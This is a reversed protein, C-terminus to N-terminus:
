RRLRPNLIEEFPRTCFFVSATTITIFLGPSFVWWWSQISAGKTFAQRLIQGWSISTPDGFGLFSIAAEALVANGFAVPLYVFTLPLINPTIHYLMIRFDSAGAVRASKIFARERMSLVQTRIVRMAQRWYVLSVALIITWVSPSLISVIVIALPEFPISYAAEVLRQLVNDVHGRYYGSIVGLITGVVAAILAGYLGIIVVTRSGVLIQSFIDRGLDNTGLLYEASPPKLIPVKGDLGRNITLPEYPALSPGILAMVIIAAFLFFGILSLRDRRALRWIDKMSFM